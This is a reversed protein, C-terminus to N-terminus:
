RAGGALALEERLAAAYLEEFRAPHGLAVAEVAADQAAAECRRRVASWDGRWRAVALNWARSCDPCRCKADRYGSLRGHTIGPAVYVAGAAQAARRAEAAQARKARMYDAKAARCIPCRCGVSYRSYGHDTRTVAAM